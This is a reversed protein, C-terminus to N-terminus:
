KGSPSLQKLKQAAVERIQEKRAATDATDKELMAITKRALSLATAKDGSALYADGLSDIANPSDPYAEVNLAMIALAGKLDGSQLHEDGLQTAFAEPFLVARPDVKRAEALAKRVTAAGDPADLERLVKVAEPKMPVGNTTPVAGPPTELNAAFWAAITDALAPHKTFMVAAHGGDPYQAFRTRPNSSLGAIWGMVTVLDGYRDDVAAAAFVPASGPSELMERGARDIPGALLAFAKIGPHRSALRLANNV